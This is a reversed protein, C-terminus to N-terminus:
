QLSPGDLQYLELLIVGSDNKGRAICTYVGAGTPMLIASERNDAPAIGTNAIEVSNPAQPWDDNSAIKTGNADHVDLLTDDVADSVGQERLEPGLARFLLRRPNDGRLIVGSILVNDGTSSFARSSLNVLSSTNAPALDFVEVLGVGTTQDIGHLVTTYAGPALEMMIAAERDNRPAIGTQAIAAANPANKHDDNRRLLQGNSDYLNLVPNMLRGAVPQNGARLSPGLGRVVVNKSFPGEVIFGAIGVNEGTRVESRASINALRVDKEVPFVLNELHIPMARYAVFGWVTPYSYEFVTEGSPLLGLLQARKSGDPNRAVAYDILYHHPADEYISSRYPSRVTQGHDYTWVETAVRADLDLHYKRGAAYERLTGRPEHHLSPQGNDLLLLHDDHTISVTHQGVPPITGPALELAYARLSPYQYWEKTTDGLIWKIAGTDYDLCIVFNERSSIIISDDSKRYTVANNHTWDEHANVDYRGKARRVFNTPDDGGAIMADRVIDALNWKKLIRGAADVEFHVSEVFSKTDVDFILGYKGYDINHHFGIVDQDALDSLVKVEGDMEMRIIQTGRTSYIANDYFTTYHNQVGATGVWRLAGDTDIITPSNRSVSSAVLIFDYSLATTNTRPHIINPSNFPPASFPETQITTSDNASSGDAFFYTLAVTNTYGQYLGFVPVIIQHAATDVYGRGALYEKSYTASLPRTVSGPKPAITFQVRQLVSLDSVSLTLKSIFPTTGANQETITITTDTAQQARAVPHVAVFLLAIALSTFSKM